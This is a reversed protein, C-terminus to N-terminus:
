PKAFTITINVYGLSHLMQDLMKHTNDEARSTLATEKAADTIKQEALQYLQQQRNPDGGFLDGVRNVLGRQEAFVYSKDHDINPKGLQPMPLKITASKHDASDTIAGQGITSFDVYAEVSGAAVFLVRDNVLFDPIYKRNDQMDVVVQFNGEAAVFRNLDQISKLLVPQSRDTKKDAFPNTLHPWLSTTHLGWLVALIVAIIGVLWFLGRLMGGGRAPGAAPVPPPEDERVRTALTGGDGSGAGGPAVEPLESTPHPDAGIRRMKPMPDGIDHAPVRGQDYRDRDGDDRAM